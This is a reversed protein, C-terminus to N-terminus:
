LEDPDPPFEKKFSEQESRYERQMQLFMEPAVIMIDNFLQMGVIQKETAPAIFTEADSLVRWLLRRGEPIKLVKTIDSLERERLRKAREALKKQREEPDM